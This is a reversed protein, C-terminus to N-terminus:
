DATRVFIERGNKTPSYMDVLFLSSPKDGIGSELRIGRITGTLFGLPTSITVEEGALFAGFIRWKTASILVGNERMLTCQM